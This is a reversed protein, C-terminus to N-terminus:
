GKKSARGYAVWYAVGVLVMGGVINGATSASLNYLVGGVNVSGSAVGAAELMCAYPLFFMNAVCHEFGCSIFAMIPMLAAFFRDTVSTASNGIWVALCVLMNCLIGRFFITWWGMSVKGTAVSVAAQGLAGGNLGATGAGLVLLAMLLSGCLNGVYVLAMRPVVRGWSVKGSLPGMVMLCDGTFLEAGAALVLFLGVLFSFGGLLTSVAFPLSSDAKVVLMFTAGIGIFAGALLALAFASANSSTTKSVAVDESKKEIQAPSLTATITASSM